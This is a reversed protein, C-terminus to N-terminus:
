SESGEWPKLYELIKRIVTEEEFFALM